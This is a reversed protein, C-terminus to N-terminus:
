WGHCHSSPTAWHAPRLRASAARLRWAHSGLLVVPPVCTASGLRAAAREKNVMYQWVEKLGEITMTCGVSLAILCIMVFLLATFAEGGEEKDTDTCNTM